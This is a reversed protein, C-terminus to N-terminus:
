SSVSSLCVHQAMDGGAHVPLMMSGPPPSTLGSQTVWVDGSDSKSVVVDPQQGLVTSDNTLRLHEIVRDGHFIALMDNTFTYSDAKALGVLDIESMAKMAVSAHFGRPNDIKLATALHRGPDGIVTVSEGGSVSRAFELSSGVGQATSVTFSGSGLVDPTIVAHIGALSDDQDNIIKTGPDGEITLGAFVLNFSATLKAHSLLDVTLQADSPFTSSYQFTNKGSVNVTTKTTTDANQVVSLSAHHSLNFTQQETVPSAGVFVPNGALAGGRVNMTGGNPMSLADGPQPVGAPFWDNPNRANNNGGGVWTRDTM